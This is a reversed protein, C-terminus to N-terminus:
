HISEASEFVRVFKFISLFHYIKQFQHASVEAHLACFQIPRVKCEPVIWICKCKRGVRVFSPGHSLFVSLAILCAIYFLSRAYLLYTFLMSTCINRSSLKDFHDCLEGRWPSRLRVSRLRWNTREKREFLLVFWIVPETEDSPPSCFHCVYANIVM